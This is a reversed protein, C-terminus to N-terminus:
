KRRTQGSLGSPKRKKGKTAVPQKPVMITQVFLKENAMQEVKPEEAFMAKQEATQEAKKMNTTKKRSSLKGRGPTSLSLLGKRM